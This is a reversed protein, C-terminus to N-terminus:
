KAKSIWHLHAQLYVCLAVYYARIDIQSCLSLAYKDKVKTNESYLLAFVAISM